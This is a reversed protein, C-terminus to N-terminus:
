NLVVSVFDYYENYIFTMYDYEYMIIINIYLYLYNQISTLESLM